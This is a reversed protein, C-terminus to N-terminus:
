LFFIYIMHLDTELHPSINVLTWQILLGAPNSGEAPSLFPISNGKLPQDTCESREFKEQHLLM